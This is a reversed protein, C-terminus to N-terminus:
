MEVLKYQTEQTVADSEGDLRVRHTVRDRDFYINVKYSEAADGGLISLVFGKKYEKVFAKHADILDLFASRPVVINNNDVSIQLAEVTSVTGKDYYEAVSRPTKIKVSEIAVVVSKKYKVITKGSSNIESGISIGSLALLILILLCITFTRM